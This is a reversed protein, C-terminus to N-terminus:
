YGLLEKYVPGLAHLDESDLAEDTMASMVVVNENATWDCSQLDKVSLDRHQQLSLYQKIPERTDKM